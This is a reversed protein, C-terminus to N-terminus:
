RALLRPFTLAREGVLGQLLRLLGEFYNTEGKEGFPCVYSLFISSSPPRLSVVVTRQCSHFSPRMAKRNEEKAAADAKKKGCESAIEGTAGNAIEEVFLHRITCQPSDDEFHIM